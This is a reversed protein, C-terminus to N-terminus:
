RKAKAKARHVQEMEESEDQSVRHLETKFAREAQLMTPSQDELAGDVPLHGKDMLIMADAVLRLDQSMYYAPCRRLEEYGTAECRTCDQGEPLLYRRGHCRPCQIRRIVLMRDGKELPEDCGM